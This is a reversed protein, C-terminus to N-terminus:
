GSRSRRFYCYHANHLSYLHYSGFIGIQLMNFFNNLTGIFCDNEESVSNSSLWVCFGRSIIFRSVFSTVLKDPGIAAENEMDLEVDLYFCGSKSLETVAFELYNETKIPFGLNDRVNMKSPGIVKVNFQNVVLHHFFLIPCIETAMHIIYPSIHPSFRSKQGLRLFTIPPELSLYERQERFQVRFRFMNVEFVLLLQGAIEDSLFVSAHELRRTSQLGARKTDCM